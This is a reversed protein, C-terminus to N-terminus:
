ADIRVTIPYLNYNLIFKVVSDGKQYTVMVVNGNDCTYDTKVYNEDFACSDTIYSYKSTYEISSISVNYSNGNADDGPYETNYALIVADIKEMLKSDAIEETSKNLISAFQAMLAARDNATVDVKVRKAYGDPDARLADFAANVAAALQKDFLEVLEAELKEYNDAMEGAEIVREAIIVRHDVIEHDQLSGIQANLETYTEVVDAYWNEYDVGYYKSLEEDDKMFSTNRYCLLYYLSAGNEIAQLIDYNIAGSSTIPAGTYNVYSHLVLGVFPIAFSSFRFHSSDLSANLIHSAYKISYVNGTDIMLDYGETNAMRDLLASVHSQADDRNIPNDEDFNSNLDSGLTSVSISNIDFKSYQKSFKSYLRDLADSSIVLTFFSEYEQDVANYVQKSAYRNDVMRSVNGRASIGDFLSTNYIYMFDFEPYVGFNRGDTASITAATNCLAKFGKNGGVVRDWKSKVPYTFKMGGNAFGTLKFNINTIDEIQGILSEYRAAMQEYQYKQGEDKEVAALDRCEKAKTAIYSSCESLEKYMTAVDEFTTLATSMNVPFTLIKTLVEMSGLTEIYLPLDESVIELASLTGNEKLYNRYYSAMGVYNSKYYANQGYVANGVTEDTLMMYRTIYSGSYKSDSVIVYKGLSGVTITESLDYEDSPYPNYSAFATAYRYRSGGSQLALNALSEGDEIIAFYGNTVTDKGTILQTQPNANVTSVVGYVPMTIQARHAGEIKSYCYDKGYIKSELAIATKKNNAESYFDEFEVIAGSGDPYFVYGSNKMDGCGFFQLPAISELTYVTEDFTISNAPLRVSLSGDKNFTYELACRIVPKQASDDVYGCEAEDEYMMAFSYTPVRKKIIDSYGRKTETMQSDTYVYIAMGDPNEETPRTAPYKKYVNFLQQQEFSAKGSDVLKELVEYSTDEGRKDLTEIFRAPSNLTYAVLVKNIDSNLSYIANYEASSERYVRSALRVTDSLYARVGKAKGSQTNIGGIEANGYTNYQVYDENDFFSFNEDPYAESLYTALITEYNELMPILIDNEFDVAKIYGPLLFRATTDGLTYNVRLGGSIPTVSIQSRLAAWKYSDYEYINQSNSSEFFKVFIQSMLIMRNKQEIAYSGNANKYGVDVPNSTLIQGTSNNVYFLFGTYKNIYMTYLNGSSNVAYLYGARLEHDLMEAATAFDYTYYEDLYVELQEATLDAEPYLSSLTSSSSSDTHAASAQIPMVAIVTTFLMVVM